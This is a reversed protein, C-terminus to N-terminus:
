LDFSEVSEQNQRRYVTASYVGIGIGTVKKIGIGIEPFLPIFGSNSRNWNRFPFQGDKSLLNDESTWKTHLGLLTM